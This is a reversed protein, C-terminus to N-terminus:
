LAAGRKRVAELRFAIPAILLLLTKHTFENFPRVVLSLALGLHISRLVSHYKPTYCIPAHAVFAVPKPGTCQLPPMSAQLVNYM